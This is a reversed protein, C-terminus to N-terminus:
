ESAPTQEYLIRAQTIGQPLAVSCRAFELMM